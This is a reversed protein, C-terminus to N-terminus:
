KGESKLAALAQEAQNRAARTRYEATTLADNNETPECFNVAEALEKDADILERLAIRVRDEDAAPPPSPHAADEYAEFAAEIEFQGADLWRVIEPLDNVCDVIPNTDEGIGIEGKDAAKKGAQIAAIHGKLAAKSKILFDIADSTDREGAAGEDLCRTLCARAELAVASRILVDAKAEDMTEMCERAMGRLGAALEAAGNDLAEARAPNKCCDFWEDVQAGCDECRWEGGSHQGGLALPRASLLALVTEIDAAVDRIYRKDPGDYFTAINASFSKVTAVDKALRDLAGRTEGSPQPRNDFAERAIECDIVSEGFDRESGSAEVPATPALCQTQARMNWQDRAASAGHAGESEVGCGACRHWYYTEADQCEQSETVIVDGDCFPCSLLEDEGSLPGPTPAQKMADAGNIDDQDQPM